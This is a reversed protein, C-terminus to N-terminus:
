TIELEDSEEYSIIFKRYIYNFNAVFAFFHMYTSTAILVRFVLNIAVSILYGNFM